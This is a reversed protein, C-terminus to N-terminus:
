RTLVNQATTSRGNGARAATPRTPLAPRPPAPRQALGDRAMVSTAKLDRGTALGYQDITVEANL